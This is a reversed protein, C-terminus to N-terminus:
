QCEGPDATHSELVLVPGEPTVAPEVWGYGGVDFAVSMWQGCRVGEELQFDIAISPGDPSAFRAAPLTMPFDDLGAGGEIDDLDQSACRGDPVCERWGAVEAALGDVHVRVGDVVLTEESEYLVRLYWRVGVQGAGERAGGVVELRSVHAPMPLISEPPVPQPAPGVGGEPGDAALTCATGTLLLLLVPVAVRLGLISIRERGSGQTM